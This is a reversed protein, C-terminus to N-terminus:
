SNREFEAKHAIVIDSPREDLRLLGDAVEAHLHFQIGHAPDDGSFADDEDVVRDHAARCRFFDDAHQLLEARGLHM